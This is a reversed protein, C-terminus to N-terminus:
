RGPTGDFGGPSAIAQSQAQMRYEGQNRDNISFTIGPASSVDTKLAEPANDFTYPGSLAYADSPWNTRTAALDSEARKEGLRLAALDPRIVLALPVLEEVAPMVASRLRKTRSAVELTEREKVPINLLIGLAATAQRLSSVADDRRSRAADRASRIQEVEAVPKKDRARDLLSGCRALNASTLRTREQLVEVSVFAKFVADIQQRLADQYQAEVIRRPRAAEIPAGSVTPLRRPPRSTRNEALM